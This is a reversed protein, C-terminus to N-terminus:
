ASQSCSWRESPTAWPRGEQPVEFFAAPILATCDGVRRWAADVIRNVGSAQAIGFFFTVGVLLVFINVPFEAYIDTLPIDAVLFASRM